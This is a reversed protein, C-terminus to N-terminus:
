PEVVEGLFNPFEDSARPFGSMNLGSQKVLCWFCVIAGGITLSLGRLNSLQQFVRSIARHWLFHFLLDCM